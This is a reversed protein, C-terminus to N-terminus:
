PSFVHNGCKLHEGWEGFSYEHYLVKATPFLIGWGRAYKTNCILHSSWMESAPCDNLELHVVGGGGGEDVGYIVVKNGSASIELMPLYNCGAPYQPICDIVYGQKLYKSRAVFEVYITYRIPIFVYLTKLLDRFAICRQSRSWASTNVRLWRRKTFHRLTTLCCSM